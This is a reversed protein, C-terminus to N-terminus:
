IDSLFRYGRSASCIISGRNKMSRKIKWYINKKVSYKKPRKKEVKNSTDKLTTKNLLFPVCKKIVMDNFGNVSISKNIGNNVFDKQLKDFVTKTLKKVIKRNKGDNNLNINHNKVMEANIYEYINDVNPTSLFSNDM